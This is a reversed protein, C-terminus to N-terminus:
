ERSGFRRRMGSEGSQSEVKAGDIAQGVGDESKLRRKARLSSEGSTTGRFENRQSKYENITERNQNRKAYYAEQKKQLKSFHQQLERPNLAEPMEDITAEEGYSNLIDRIESYSQRCVDEQSALSMLMEECDEYERELADLRPDDDDEIRDSQREIEKMRLKVSVRKNLLQNMKGQVEALKDQADLMRAEPMEAGYKRLSSITTSLMTAHQILKAADGSQLDKRMKELLSATREDVQKLVDKDGNDPFKTQETLRFLIDNLKNGVLEDTAADKMRGVDYLINTLQDKFITSNKVYDKEGYGFLGM